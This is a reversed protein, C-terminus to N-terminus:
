HGHSLDPFHQHGPDSGLGQGPLHGGAHSNGAIALNADGGLAIVARGQAVTSAGYISFQDPGIISIVTDGRSIASDAITLTVPRSLAEGYKRGTRPSIFAVGLGAVATSDRGVNLTRLDPATIVVEQIRQLSRPPITITFSEGAYSGSLTGGSPSISQAEVVSTFGAVVASPPASPGYGNGAAEAASSLLFTSGALCVISLGFRRSLKRESM